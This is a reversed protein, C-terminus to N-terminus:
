WSTLDLAMRKWTSSSVCVYLYGSDYAIDGATGSSGSASPAAASGRAFALRSVKKLATATTDYTLVYDNDAPATDETQGTIVTAAVETNTIAGAQITADDVLNNLDTHTVTGGSAINVGKTLKSGM